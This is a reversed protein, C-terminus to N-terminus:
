SYTVRDISIIRLYIRYELCPNLSLFGEKDEFKFEFMKHTSVIKDAVPDAIVFVQDVDHETCGKFLSTWSVRLFTSNAVTARPVRKSHDEDGCFCDWQLALTLVLTFKFLSLMQLNKKLLDFCIPSLSCKTSDFSRGRRLQKEAGWSM